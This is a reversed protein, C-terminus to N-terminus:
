ISVYNCLTASLFIKSKINKFKPVDILNNFMPPFCLFDLYTLEGDLSESVESEDDKSDSESTGNTNFSNMSM